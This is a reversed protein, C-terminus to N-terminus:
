PDAENTTKKLHTHTKRLPLTQQCFKCFNTTSYAELYEILTLIYTAHSWTLPSVSLPSDDFPHVQEALIGSPLAHQATWELLELSKRLLNKKKEGEKVKSLHAYYEAVWLTSIFWPNGPVNKVDQSVQHYYDNEYRAIGGVETKVWLRDIVQTITSTVMPNDIPFVKFEFIAFLSADIVRDKIIEEKPGFNIMRLFRGLQSDFLYKEMAEKVEQAAHAYKQELEADGFLDAFHGAAVLGAYVAATSFTLVGRREEWLDYSPLPLGRKDRYDSMFNAAPVILTTYLGHVFDLDHHIRYHEWLAFLVLATEDEQIPLQTQNDGGYWPHWTSGPTYDPNYKHSLYGEPTIVKACFEFFKRTLSAYGAKDLAYAVLAGDRPWMYSYHDRNFQLIDSDNAAIIAGNHNIQTKLILLSRHFLTELEASIDNFIFGSKNAWAWDYAKVRDFLITFNQQNIWMNLNVVEMYSTGAAIWYYGKQSAKPPLNFTIEITSDVAGQSIPNESLHGDEADKYTGEKGFHAKGTAFSSIQRNSGMGNFLFYRNKLYHIIAKSKPDYYATIGINSGLIQLDHSFYMKVKRVTDFLNHIHIERFFVANQAHVADRLEIEIGLQSNLFKPMGIMSRPDYELIKNWNKSHLWQFSGDVWLGIRNKHGNLHNELGVHPYYIDRMIYNADFTVLFQQNGYVM